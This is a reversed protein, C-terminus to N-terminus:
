DSGSTDVVVPDDVVPDDVVIAAPMQIKQLVEGTSARWVVLFDGYAAYVFTGDSQVVDAEEVGEEQNNTGFNDEGDAEATATKDATADGAVKSAQDSTVAETGSDAVIGLEPQGVSIVDYDVYDVYNNDPVQYKSNRAIIGNVHFKAAMLLDSEMDDCTEYGAMSAAGYQLLEIPFAGRTSTYLTAVTNDTTDNDTTTDTMTDDFIENPSDSKSDNNNLGLSLGLVLALVGMALAVVGVIYKTQHYWAVRTEKEVEPIAHNNRTSSTGKEAESLADSGM